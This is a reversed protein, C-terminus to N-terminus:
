SLEFLHKVHGALEKSSPMNKAIEAVAHLDVSSRRRLVSVLLPIQSALAPLTATTVANEWSQGPQTALSTGIETLVALSVSLLPMVWVQYAKHRKPTLEEAVRKLYTNCALRAEAEQEGSDAMLIKQELKVLHARVDTLDLRLQELEPVIRYKNRAREFVIAAFPTVRQRLLAYEPPYEEPACASKVVKLLREAVRGENRLLECFAPQRASDPTFGVKLVDACGFYLFSRALFLVQRDHGEKEAYLRSLFDDRTSHNALWQVANGITHLDDPMYCLQYSLFGHSGPSLAAPLLDKFRDTNTQDGLYAALHGNASSVIREQQDHDPAAEQVFGEQKLLDFFESEWSPFLGGARNLTIAHDYLCFIDIFAVLDQLSEWNVASQHEFWSASTLLNQTILRSGKLNKQHSQIAEM